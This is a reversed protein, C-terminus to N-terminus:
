SYGLGILASELVRHLAEPLDQSRQRLRDAAEQARESKDAALAHTAVIMVDGHMLAATAESHFRVSQYFHSLSQQAELLPM